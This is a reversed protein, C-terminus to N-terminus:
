KNYHKVYYTFSDAGYKTGDINCYMCPDRDRTGNILMQRYQKIQDGNWIDRLHENLINGVVGKRGWDNNCLVVSGDYDILAKYFPVYCPGRKHLQQSQMLIDSRNVEVTKIDTHVDKFTLNIDIGDLMDSVATSIDEDYMSITLQNLGAQQLREVRERTLHDGNTIVELWRLDPLANRIIAVITALQKHLFPEGFGVISVRNSFQMDALQKAIKTATHITMNVNRNPYIAPDHRPCFSCTRNCLETINLEVTKLTDAASTVSESQVTRLQQINM